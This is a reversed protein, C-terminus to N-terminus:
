TGQGLECQSLGSPLQLFRIRILEMNILSSSPFLLFPLKTFNWFKERYNNLSPCHRRLGAQGETLSGDQPIHLTAMKDNPTPYEGGKPGGQGILHGTPSSVLLPPPMCCHRLIMTFLAITERRTCVRDSTTMNSSIFPCEPILAFARHYFIAVVMSNKGWIGTCVLISMAVNSAVACCYQHLRGRSGTLGGARQYNIYNGPIM